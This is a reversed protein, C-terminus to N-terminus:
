SFCGTFVNSGLTANLARHLERIAEHFLVKLILFETLDTM